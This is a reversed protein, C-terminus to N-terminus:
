SSPPPSSATANSNRGAHPPAKGRRRRRRRVVISLLLVASAHGLGAAPGRSARCACGGVVDITVEGDDACSTEIAADVDSTGRADHHHLPWPATSRGDLCQPAGISWAFVQGQRTATVLELAGDGDLDGAAAVPGMWGGVFKPFGPAEQGQANRAHLWGADSGYVIEVAGDADVDVITAGAFLAWGETALPWPELITGDARWVSFVTELKTLLEGPNEQAEAINLEPIGMTPAMVEPAGDGDLDAAIPQSLLLANFQYRDDALSVPPGYPSVLALLTGHDFAAAVQGDGRFAVLQGAAHGAVVEAARDGDLDVLV